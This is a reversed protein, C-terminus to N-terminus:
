QTPLDARSRKCARELVRVSKVMVERRIFGLDSPTSAGILRAPDDDTLFRVLLNTDPRTV